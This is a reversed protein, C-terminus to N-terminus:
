DGVKKRRRPPLKRRRVSKQAYMRTDALRLAAAPQNEAEVFTALGLSMSAEPFSDARLLGIVAALRESLGEQDEPKELPILAAFEDGGLRYVRDSQRLRGRLSHAFARLLADGQDHGHEDNVRKLGDIDIMAVVVDRLNGEAVQEGYRGSDLDFARRNALGTLIDTNARHEAASLAREARAARRNAFRLEITDMVIGALDSLIEREEDTIQRPAHDMLCLSGINFGDATRLPAGAYFRLGAPGAVLPHDRTQPNAAADPVDYVSEGLIASAALGPVREVQTVGAMGQVSKYWIRERDVISIAVAPIGFLRACLATIRDFAGEPPTDLIEYRALVSLREAENNPLEPSM